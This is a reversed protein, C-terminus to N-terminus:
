RGLNVLTGLLENTTSVIRSSAEFAKQYKILNVAEEDLSVGMVSDRQSLMQDGLLKAAQQGNLAEKTITGIKGVLNNYFESPTQNNLFGTDSSIKGILSAIEANGPENAIGAIPLDAPNEKLSQNVRINFANIAGGGSEFLVRGPAATGTDNLGFGLSLYNNIENALNNVFSNLQKAISFSNSTDLDDLTINFMKLNSSVEGSQPQLEITTGKDEDFKVISLTREGTNNTTENIKVTSYSSSTLLNIGNVFINVSGDDNNGVKIDVIKSLEELKNEREDILTLSEGSSINGSKLIDNNLAAIEKLLDNISETFTATNKYAENRLDSLGNATQNIRESLSEAQLVAYQRLTINEPKFSLEDFSNLLNEVMTGINLDSPESFITEVRQLFNTDNTYSSLRSNSNRVERDYYEQRFSQIKDAIVGTGIQHNNIKLPSTESMIAVRRSYGPTNVNAINNSTVDLGFKQALLARKGIELASLNM